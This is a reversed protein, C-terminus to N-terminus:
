RGSNIPPILTKLRVISVVKKLGRKHWVKMKLRASAAAMVRNRATVVYQRTRNGGDRLVVRYLGTKIRVIM